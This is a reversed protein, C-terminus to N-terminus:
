TSTGRTSLMLVSSVSGKGGFIDTDENNICCDETRESVDVWVGCCRMVTSRGELLVSRLPATRRPSNDAPMGELLVIGRRASAM